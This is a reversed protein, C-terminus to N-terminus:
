VFLFFESGLDSVVPTKSMCVCEESGTTKSLPRRFLMNHTIFPM